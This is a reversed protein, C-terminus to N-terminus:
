VLFWSRINTLEWVAEGELRIGTDKWYGYPHTVNIYEDAINAGGTYGIKGDIVAIKRHSRNSFESNSTAPCVSRPM